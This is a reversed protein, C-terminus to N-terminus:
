ASEGPLLALWVPDNRHSALDELAEIARVLPCRATISASEWSGSSGAKPFIDDPFGGKADWEEAHPRIEEETFRRVSARFAEHEETWDPFAM